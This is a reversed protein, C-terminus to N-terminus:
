VLDALDDVFGDMIPLTPARPESQQQAARQVPPSPSPEVAVVAQRAPSVADVPPAAASYRPTAVASGLVERMQAKLPDYYFNADPDPEASARRSQVVPSDVVRLRQQSQHPLSSLRLSGHQPTHPWDAGPLVTSLESLPNVIGMGHGLLGRQRSVSTSAALPDGRRRVTSTHRSRAASPQPSPLTRRPASLSLYEGRAPSFVPGSEDDSSSASSVDDSHDRQQHRTSAGDHEARGAFEGDAQHPHTLLPSTVAAEHSRQLPWRVPIQVTDSVSDNGKPPEPQQQRRRQQSWSDRVFEVLDRGIAASAADDDTVFARRGSADKGDGGRARQASPEPSPRWRVGQGLPPLGPHEANEAGRPLVQVAEKGALPHTAMSVRSSSGDLRYQRLIEEAAADADRIAEEFAHEQFVITPTRGFIPGFDDVTIKPGPVANDTDTKGSQEAGQQSFLMRKFVTFLSPPPTVLNVGATSSDRQSFQGAGRAADATAADSAARWRLLLNAGLSTRTVFQYWTFALLAYASFVWSPLAAILAPLDSHRWSGPHTPDDIAGFAVAAAAGAVAAAASMIAFIAQRRSRFPRLTATAVLQTLHCILIGIAHGRHHHTATKFRGNALERQTASQAAGALAAAGFATLFSTFYFAARPGDWLSGGRRESNDWRFVRLRFARM